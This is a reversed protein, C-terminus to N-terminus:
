EYTAVLTTIEVTAAQDVPGGWVLVSVKKFPSRPVSASLDGTAVYTWVVRYRYSSFSDPFAAASLTAIGTFGRPINEEMKEQALYGKKEMTEIRATRPALNIFIAILIYLAIAIVTLGVVTEVLSFGPRNM